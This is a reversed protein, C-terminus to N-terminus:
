RPYEISDLLSAAAADTLRWTHIESADVGDLRARWRLEELAMREVLEAPLDHAAAYTAAQEALPRIPIM